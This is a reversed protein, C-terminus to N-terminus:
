RLPAREAAFAFLAAANGGRIRGRDAASLGPFHTEILGITEAYGPEALIWPFDSGFLVRGPGFAELLAMTVPRLDEYPYSTGAFAYLGAFLVFVNPFRALRTVFALGEPTYRGSFCPRGTADAHFGFPWYGLHNLVVTLAPLQELVSELLQMQERGGYFWLKDGTRELEALLPYSELEDARGGARAGLEFMRVGSLGSALRRERYTAVDVPGAAQVGIAAFRGPHRELSDRLYEDHHSLPVIVATDVGAGDMERLLLEAPAELEAPFLQHVDRPYRESVRGFVHTHADVVM